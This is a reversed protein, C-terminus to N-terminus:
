LSPPLAKEIKFLDDVGRVVIYIGGSATIQERFQKQHKSLKGSATKVEIWVTLGEKVAILDSIGKYSGLGQQMRIVFWGRLRLYDRVAKLIGTEGKKERIDRIFIVPM